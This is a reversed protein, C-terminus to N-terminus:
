QLDSVLMSRADNSVAPSYTNEPLPSIEIVIGLLM